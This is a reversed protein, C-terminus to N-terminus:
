GTHGDMFQPSKETPYLIKPGGGSFAEDGLTAVGYFGALSRKKAAPKASNNSMPFM